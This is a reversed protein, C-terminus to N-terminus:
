FKWIVYAQLQTHPEHINLVYRFGVSPGIRVNGLSLDLFVGANFNTFNKTCQAEQYTDFYDNRILEGMSSELYAEGETETERKNKLDLQLQVGAGFSLWDKANYRYSVPVFYATINHISQQQKYNMLVQEGQLPVNMKSFTTLEEFSGSSFYLETQFYGRYPKFPSLTIGAFFEQSKDMSPTYIYGAKAGISFGARFWTTSWNTYVPKNEDFFIATRSKTKLKHLHTGLKLSYKVFGKTSDRPPNNKQRSGPLYINRYVFVLQDDKILTDLCSYNVPKGEPCIPCEPYREDVKLTSLDFLEPVATELRITHAPGEGNNQFKITFHVTKGSASRFSMYNGTSAMKNPDHSTVIEMETDKVSYNRFNKNPVYISRITIIASTDKLMEPTTKLTRFIHRVEGPQMHEFEIRQRNRYLEGTKELMFPLPLQQLSDKELEALWMPRDTESALLLPETFFPRMVAYDPTANTIKENHYLRTDKLIFNDDKFREENYFLYVVGSTVVNSSNKYSTIVVMEQDPLPDRNIQVKLNEEDKFNVPSNSLSSAQLEKPLERSIHVTEPRTKPPKGSDYNNTSWLRVTYDGAEEYQHKPSEEFSFNGDGFEWYYTYFAEPAGMIQRLSPMKANFQVADRLLHYTIPAKRSLSDSSETQAVAVGGLVSLLVSLIFAKKTM